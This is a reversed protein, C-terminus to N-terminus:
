TEEKEAKRFNCADFCMRCENNNTHHKERDPHHYKCKDCWRAHVEPGQLFNNEYPRLVVVDLLQRLKTIVTDLQPEQIRLREGGGMHVIAEYGLFKSSADPYLELDAVTPHFWHEKIDVSSIMAKNVLTAKRAIDNTEPFMQLKIM